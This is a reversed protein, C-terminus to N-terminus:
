ALLAQLPSVLGACSGLEKAPCRPSFCLPAGSQSLSHHRQWCPCRNRRHCSNGADREQHRLLMRVRASARARAHTRAYMCVHVCMCVHECMRVCTHLSVCVCGPRSRKRACSPGRPCPGPELLWRDGVRRLLERGEAEDEPLWGGDRPLAKDAAESAVCADWGPLSGGRSGVGCACACAAGM